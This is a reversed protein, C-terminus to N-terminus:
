VPGNVECLDKLKQYFDIRRKQLIESEYKKATEINEEGMDKLENPNDILRLVENAFAMYDNPDFLYKENLLEPVGATPSSIVPLGVSMAEIITRPLGEMKTPLVMLNANKLESILDEKSSLRGTFTVSKYIGLNDVYKKYEELKDGDGIIILSVNKKVALVYNLANILTYHGKIDSNISNSVHILKFIDRDKYVVPESAIEEKNLEVSSYSSVFHNKNERVWANPYLNQLYKETVYSAGNAHWTMRKVLRVSVFRMWWPMDVFTNPDNVVEVAYPKKTHKDFIYVFFSEIQAIRYIVCDCDSSAKRYIHLIQPLMSIMQKMGRYYPLELIDVNPGNVKKMVTYDRQCRKDVKAIFKVKEFVSLYRNLFDYSYISQAYYDDNKKYLICNDVVLVKMNNNMGKM